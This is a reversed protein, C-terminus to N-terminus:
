SKEKRWAEADHKRVHVHQCEPCTKLEFTNTNGIINETCIVMWGDRRFGKAIFNGLQELEM